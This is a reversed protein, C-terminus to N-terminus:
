YNLRRRGKASRKLFWNKIRVLYYATLVMGTFISILFTLMTYVTIIYFPDWLQSPISMYNVLFHLLISSAVGKKLFLYGMLIGAVASPFVKYINWGSLHAMGFLISSLLLFFIAFGDMEIRGGFLYNRIRPSSSPEKRKLYRHCFYLPLGILLIRSVFEEYVSARALSFLRVWFSMKKLFVPEEVGEGLITYTLIIYAVNVFLSVMFLKLILILANDESGFKKNEAPTSPPQPSQSERKLKKFLLGFLPIDGVSSVDKGVIGNYIGCLAEEGEKKFVHYFSYLIALAILIFYFLIFYSGLYINVGFEQLLFRDFSIIYPPFPVVFFLWGIGDSKHANRAVEVVAPFLSLLNLILLILLLFLSTHVLVSIPSLKKRQFFEPYYYVEELEQYQGSPYSARQDQFHYFNKEGYQYLRSFNLEGCHPCKLTFSRGHDKIEKGCNRCLFYM